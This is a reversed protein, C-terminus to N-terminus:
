FCVFLLVGVRVAGLIRQLFSQVPAQSSSSSFLLSWRWSDARQLSPTGWKGQVGGITLDWQLWIGETSGTRQSPGMTGSPDWLRVATGSPLGRRHGGM